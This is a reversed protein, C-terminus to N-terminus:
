SKPKMSRGPSALLPEEPWRHKPYRGKMDKRVDFYSNRWFHALDSTTQLPRRAPSLLTFCLPVQGQAMLPSSLQGFMEQLIVHVSPAQQATYTIAIQQGNPTTYHSPAHVELFQQQPYNLTAQLVPKLAFAQLQGISKINACYPFLWEDLTDLLTEHSFLPLEDPCLQALWSVRQVWNECQKDWALFGLGQAKIVDSFCQLRDAEPINKIPIEHIVLQGICTQKRAILKNSEPAYRYTNRSNVQPLDQIVALAISVALYVRGDTNQGDCDVIVCWPSQALPEDDFMSVGRGNALTFGIHTGSTQNKGHKPSENDRRKAIRDAFAVACLRAVHHEIDTVQELSSQLSTQLSLRSDNMTASSQEAARVARYWRQALQLVQYLTGSAKSSAKGTSIAALVLRVRALLDVGLSQSAFAPDRAIDRESLLAAIVCALAQMCPAPDHLIMAGLRPEIGLGLVQQGQPSIQGNALQAGIALNLAYAQAVHKAPPADLWNAQTADLIGWASLDLVLASLDTHMVALPAFDSLSHHQSEPWLRLCYGAQVRGARGARQDASSQAIRQSVLKSLGSKVDFVSVKELGTDIVCTVNPITVSTEAINTALIIRQGTITPDPRIIAEQQALPMAGYLTYVQPPKACQKLVSSLASVCQQIAGQSPLFVLIDGELSDNKDEGFARMDLLVHEVAQTVQAAIDRNSWRQISNGHRSNAPLRPTFHAITVPYSRGPCELVPAGDLYRSVAQTDMTASMVLVRLDDRLSQQVEQCLLLALDAHLAREHFEDFIVLGVGSLEPDAQLRRTLIGETIVEIRTHRSRKSENRIQYGVTQGVPEGLQQALFQAIAKVAVRRPELILITDSANLWPADLLALPVQTSKGAGPQAALVVAQHATLLAHLQPLVSHIPLTDISM